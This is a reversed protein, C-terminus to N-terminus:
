ILTDIAHVVGNKAVIDAHLVRAGLRKGETNSVVKIIGGKFVQTAIIDGGATHHTSWTVGISFLTGPVVHRLLLKNLAEKDEM